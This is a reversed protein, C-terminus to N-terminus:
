LRGRSYMIISANGLVTVPLTSLRSILVRTAGMVFCFVYNVGACKSRDGLTRVIKPLEFHSGNPTRRRRSTRERLSEVGGGADTVEEAVDM